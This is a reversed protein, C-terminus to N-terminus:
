LEDLMKRQEATLGDALETRGERAQASEVVPAADTGRQEFRDYIEGAKGELVDSIKAYVAWGIAIIAPPLVFAWFWSGGTSVGSLLVTLIWVLAAVALVILLQAFWEGTRTRQSSTRAARGRAWREVAPKVFLVLLTMVVAAWLASWGVRAPTFFGIILLVAANFVLLSAFRIIWTRM